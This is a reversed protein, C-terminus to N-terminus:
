FPNSIGCDKQCSLFQTKRVCLESGISQNCMLNSRLNLSLSYRSNLRLNSRTVILEARLIILPQDSVM